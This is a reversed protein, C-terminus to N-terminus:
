KLLVHLMGGVFGGAVGTISTVIVVLYFEFKTLTIKETM